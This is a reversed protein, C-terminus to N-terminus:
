APATAVLPTGDSAVLPTGDSAVLPIGADGGGGQGGLALGIGINM